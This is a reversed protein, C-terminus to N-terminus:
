GLLALVPVNQRGSSLTRSEPVSMELGPSDRSFRSPHDAQCVLLESCAYGVQPYSFNAAPKNKSVLGTSECYDPAASLTAQLLNGLIGMWVWFDAYNHCNLWIM